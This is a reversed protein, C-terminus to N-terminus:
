AAAKKRNADLRADVLAVQSGSGPSSVIYGESALQEYAAVTVIRSVGLERALARTGPLSSGPELRGTLIAERLAATVARYLPRETGLQILM